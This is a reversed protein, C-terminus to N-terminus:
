RLEASRFLPKIRACLSSKRRGSLDGRPASRAPASCARGTWRTTRAIFSARTVPVTTAERLAEAAPALDRLREMDLIRIQRRQVDLIKEGQLRTILRSLTEVALGLYNAIDKRTMSLFFERDSFGRSKFRNSLSLLFAAVREEASRNGLLLLMAHDNVIERSVLRHFQQHLGPIDHCVQEMRDFPLRCVSTTELAVADCGHNGGDMGDLGLGDVSISELSGRYDVRNIYIQTPVSVKISGSRVIYIASFPDGSRFLRKGREIPYRRQMITDLKDISPQDLTLPLCLEALSCSRCSVQLQAIDVVKDSRAM